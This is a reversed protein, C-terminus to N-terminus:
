VSTGVCLDSSTSCFHLYDFLAANSVDDGSLYADIEEDTTAYALGSSMTQIDDKITVLKSLKVQSYKGTLKSGTVVTEVIELNSERLWKHIRVKRSGIQGGKNALDSTSISYFGLKKEDPSLGRLLAANIM